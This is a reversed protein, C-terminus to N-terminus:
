IGDSGQGTRKFPKGKIEEGPYGLAEEASKSFSVIVGDLGTAFVLDYANRLICKLFEETDIQKSKSEPFERSIKKRHQPSDTLEM